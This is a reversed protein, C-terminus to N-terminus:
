SGQIGMPVLCLSPDVLLLAVGRAYACHNSPRERLSIMLFGWIGFCRYQAVMCRSIISPCCSYYCVTQRSCLIISVAPLRGSNM